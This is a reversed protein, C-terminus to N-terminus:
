PCTILPPKIQSRQDVAWGHDQDRADVPAVLPGTDLSRDVAKGDTATCINRTRPSTARGKRAVVLDRVLDFCSVGSGGQVDLSKALAGRTPIPAIPEGEADADVLATGVQGVVSYVDSGISAHTGPSLAARAHAAILM